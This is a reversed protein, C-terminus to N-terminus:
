IRGDNKPDESAGPALTVWPCQEEEPTFESVRAVEVFLPGELEENIPVESIRWGEEIPMREERFFIDVFKKPATGTGNGNVMLYLDSERTRVLFEKITSRLKPNDAKSQQLRAKQVLGASTVNYYDVGPNSNALTSFIQENFIINNGLDRDLRSVSADHEINGHRDLRSNTM